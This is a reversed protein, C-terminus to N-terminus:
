FLSMHRRTVAEHEGPRTPRISCTRKPSVGCFRRAIPQACVCPRPTSSWRITSSVFPRGFLRVFSFFVLVCLGSTVCTLLFAKHVDDAGKPCNADQNSPSVPGDRSFTLLCIEAEAAFQIRALGIDVMRNQNIFSSLLRLHRSTDRTNPRGRFFTWFRGSFLCEVCLPIM